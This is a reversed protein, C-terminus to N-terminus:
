EFKCVSQLLKRYNKPDGFPNADTRTEKVNCVHRKAGAINGNSQSEIEQVSDGVYNQLDRAYELYDILTSSNGISGFRKYNLDLHQESDRIEPDSQRDKVYNVILPLLYGTLISGNGILAMSTQLVDVVEFSARPKLGYSFMLKAIIVSTEIEQNDNGEVLFVGGGSHRLREQDVGANDLLERILKTQNPTDLVFYRNIFRNLYAQGDFSQGYAGAISHSLQMGNFGLVFVVGPVDFLHNIQELIKVAYTPRCRDLEDIIIVLPLEKETPLAELITTLDEKIDDIAQKASKYTNIRENMYTSPNSNNATMDDAAGSVFEDAARKTEKNSGVDTTSASSSDNFASETIATGAETLVFTLGRRMLGYGVAKSVNWAKTRIQELRSKITNNEAALPALAEELTVILAALPDDTIDDVWANVYAVPHSLKMQKAFRKLFFTKGFGYDADVAITFGGRDERAFDRKAVSRIYDALLKAESSRDLRDDDWINQLEQPDLYSM